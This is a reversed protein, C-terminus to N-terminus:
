RGPQLSIEGLDLRGGPPRIPEGWRGAAGTRYGTTEQWVFLRLEGRPAYKIEFAGDATTVAFYPHDFVRVYATMWPRISSTVQIPFREAKADSM